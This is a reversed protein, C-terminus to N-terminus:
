PRLADSATRRVVAPPRLPLTDSGSEVFCATPLPCTLLADSQAAALAETAAFGCLALAAATAALWGTRAVAGTDPEGPVRCSMWAGLLGVAVGVALWAEVENVSTVFEM